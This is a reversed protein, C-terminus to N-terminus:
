KPLFTAHNISDNTQFYKQRSKYLFIPRSKLRFSLPPACNTSLISGVGTTRPEIGMLM